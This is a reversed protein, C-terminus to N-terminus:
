YSMKIKLNYDAKKDMFSKDIENVNSWKLLIESTEGRLLSLVFKKLARSQGVVMIEDKISFDFRSYSILNLYEKEDLSWYNIPFYQPFIIELLDSDQDMKIEIESDTNSEGVLDLPYSKNNFMVLNNKPYEKDDLPFEIEYEEKQLVSEKECGTILFMFFVLIACFFISLVKKFSQSKSYNMFDVRKLRKSDWSKLIFIINVCNKRM